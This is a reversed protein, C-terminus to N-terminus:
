DNAVRRRRLGPHSTSEESDPKKKILGLQEYLYAIRPKLRERLEPSGSLIRDLEKNHLKEAALAQRAEIVEKDWDFHFDLIPTEEIEHLGYEMLMKDDKLEMRCFTAIQFSAPPGGIKQIKKKVQRITDTPKVELMFNKWNWFVVEIKMIWSLLFLANSRLHEFIFGRGTHFTICFSTEGPKGDDSSIILRTSNTQNFVLLNM